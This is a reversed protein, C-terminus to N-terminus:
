GAGADGGAPTRDADGVPGSRDGSWSARALLRGAVVDLAVGLAVGALDAVVDAPDGSRHPLVWHQVLESVVAHGALVPLWWRAALRARLGALAVSAFTAVHVVKDLGPLMPAGGTDPAYLVLLHLALLVVFAVRWGRAATTV